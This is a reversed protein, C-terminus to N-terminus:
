VLFQMEFRASITFLNLCSASFKLSLFQLETNETTQYSLKIAQKCSYLNGPDEVIRGSVATPNSSPVDFSCPSSTVADVM